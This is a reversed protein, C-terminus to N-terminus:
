YRKNYCNCPSPIPDRKETTKNDLIVRTGVVQIENYGSKEFPTQHFSDLSSPTFERPPIYKEPM